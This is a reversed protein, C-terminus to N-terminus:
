KNEDVSNLLEEVKEYLKAAFGLVEINM